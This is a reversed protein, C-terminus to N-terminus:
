LQFHRGGISDQVGPLPEIYLHFEDLCDVRFVEIDELFYELIIFPQVLVTGNRAFREPGEARGVGFRVEDDAGEAGVLSEILGAMCDLMNLLVESQTRELTGFGIPLFHKACPRNPPYQFGGAASHPEQTLILEDIVTARM